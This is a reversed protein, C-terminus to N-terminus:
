VGSWLGGARGGVKFIVLVSGILTPLLSRAALKASVLSRQFVECLADVVGPDRQCLESQAVGSLIPWAFELVKMAPHEQHQQHHHHHQQQEQGPPLTHPGAPAPGQGAELFRVASAVLLLDSALVQLGAASLSGALLSPLPPLLPSPQKRM